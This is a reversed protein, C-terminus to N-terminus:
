DPKKAPKELVFFYCCASSAVFAPILFMVIFASDFIQGSSIASIVLLYLVTVMVGVVGAMLCTLKSVFNARLVSMAVGTLLAPFIGLILGYLMGTTLLFQIFGGPNKMGKVSALM